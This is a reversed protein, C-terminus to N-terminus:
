FFVGEIQLVGGGVVPKASIKLFLAHEIRFPRFRMIKVLVFM